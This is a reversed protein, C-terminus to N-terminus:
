IFSWWITLVVHQLTWLWAVFQHLSWCVAMSVQPQQWQSYANWQQQNNYGQQVPAQQPGSSNWISFLIWLTFICCSIILASCTRELLCMIKKWDTEKNIKTSTNTKKEIFFIKKKRWCMIWKFFFFLEINYFYLLSMYYIYIYNGEVKWLLIKIGIRQQIHMTPM